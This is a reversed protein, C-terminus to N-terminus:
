NRTSTVRRGFYAQRRQESATACACIQALVRALHAKQREGGSLTPYAQHRRDAMEVLLLAETVIERDRKSPTARYHPYRGMLVVDEVHLPFVLESQQSLMARRHALAISDWSAIPEAGYLVRGSTPPPHGAAIRMLTSKGAGNPGLIINFKGKRFVLDISHLIQAKGMRFSVDEVCVDALPM